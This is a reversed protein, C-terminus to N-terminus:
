EATRALQELAAIRAANTGLPGIERLMTTGIGSRYLSATITDLSLGVSVEDFGLKRAMIGIWERTRSATNGARLMATGFSLLVDAAETPAATQDKKQYTSTM